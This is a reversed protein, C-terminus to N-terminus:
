RERERWSMTPSSNRADAARATGPLGGRVDGRRQGPPGHGLWRLVFAGAVLPLGFATVDQAIKRERVLSRYLRSGRGGALIQGCVELADFEKSGFPPCRFGFHVRTLPVDDPVM